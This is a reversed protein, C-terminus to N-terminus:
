AERVEIAVLELDGSMTDAADTALRTIHVSLTEGAALGSIVMPGIEMVALNGSTAPCSATVDVTAQPSPLADLNNGSTIRTLEVSLKVNGTTATTSTWTVFVKLDGGRYHTPLNTHFQARENAAADFDLVVFEGRIDLTAYALTPPRNALPDFVLLTDGVAM